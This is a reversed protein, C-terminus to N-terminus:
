WKITNNTKKIYKKETNTQQIDKKIGEKEAEIKDQDATDEMEKVDDKVEEVVTKKTKTKRKVKSKIRTKVKKEEEKSEKIATEAESIENHIEELDIEDIKSIEKLSSVENISEQSINETKVDNLSEDTFAVEKQEPVLISENKNNIKRLEVSGSLVAIKTTINRQNGANVFHPFASKDKRDVTVSFTTGRVGAVATPTEIEFISRRRLKELGVIIQGVLLKLRAVNNKENILILKKLAVASNEKIKLVGRNAIAFNVAGGKGTILVDNPLLQSNLKLSIKDPSDERLIYAKGIVLTVKTKLIKQFTGQDEKRVCDIFLIGLIAVVVTFVKVQKM